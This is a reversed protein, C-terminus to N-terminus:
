LDWCAWSGQGPGQQWKFARPAAATPDGRSESQQPPQAPPLLPSPQQSWERGMGLLVSPREEHSGGPESIGKRARM